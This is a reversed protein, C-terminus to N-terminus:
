SLTTKQQSQGDVRRQALRRPRRSIGTQRQGGLPHVAPSAHGHILWQVQHRELADVVAQPNVDMIEAVQQQQDNATPACEPPSVAAFLCRCPLSCVSFGRHISKPVFALYRITPARTDGHMISRGYLDLVNEELLRMRLRTRLAPGRSLRPQRVFYRPVGSQTLANIASAIQQHLPNRDDDGIRAEFLDGAPYVARGGRRALQSFRLFRRHDGRNKQSASAFGCYFHRM